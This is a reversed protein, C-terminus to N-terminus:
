GSLSRIQRRHLGGDNKLHDITLKDIDKEKCSECSCDKSYAALVRTKVERSTKGLAELHKKFNCNVCLM